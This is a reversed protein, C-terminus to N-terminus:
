KEPVPKGMNDQLSAMLRTYYYYYYYYYYYDDNKGKCESNWKQSSARM